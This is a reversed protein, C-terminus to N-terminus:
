GATDGGDMGGNASAGKRKGTQNQADEPFASAPRGPPPPRSPVMKALPNDPAVYKLPGRQRGETLPKFM